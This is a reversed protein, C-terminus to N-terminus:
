IKRIIITMDVDTTPTKIIYKLYLINIGAGSLIISADPFTQIYSCAGFRRLALVGVLFSILFVFWYSIDTHRIQAYPSSWIMTFLINHKCAAVGFGFVEADLINVPYQHAPFHVGDCSILRERGCPPVARQVRNLLVLMDAGWLWKWLCHAQLLCLPSLKSQMHGLVGSHREFLM